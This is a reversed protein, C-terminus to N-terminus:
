QTATVSTTSEINRVLHSIHSRSLTKLLKIAPSLVRILPLEFYSFVAAGPPSIYDINSKEMFILTRCLNSEQLFKRQQDKGALCCQSLVWGAGQFFIDFLVLVTKQNLYSPHGIIGQHLCYCFTTRTQPPLKIIINYELHYPSSM